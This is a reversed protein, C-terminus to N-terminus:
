VRPASGPKRRGTCCCAATCSTFSPPRGWGNLARHARWHRVARPTNMLTSKEVDRVKVCKEMCTLSLIDSCVVEVKPALKMVLRARRLPQTRGHVRWFLESVRLKPKATPKAVKPAKTSRKRPKRPKPKGQAEAEEERKAQADAEAKAEEAAAAIAAKRDEEAQEWAALKKFTAKGARCSAADCAFGKPCKDVEKEDGVWRPTDRCEAIQEETLEEVHKLTGSSDHEADWQQKQEKVDAARRQKLEQTATAGQQRKSRRRGPTTAPVPEDMVGHKEEEEHEPVYEEGSDESSMRAGCSLEVTHKTPIVVIRVYQGAEIQRDM